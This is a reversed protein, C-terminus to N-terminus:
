KANNVIYEVGKTLGLDIVTLLTVAVASSIIVILTYSILQNRTPWTTHKLETYVGIFYGKIAQIM